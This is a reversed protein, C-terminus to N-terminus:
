GTRGGKDVVPYEGEVNDDGTEESAEGVEREECASWGCSGVPRRVV